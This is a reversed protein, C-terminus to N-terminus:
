SLVRQVIFDRDGRWDLEAVDYDWFLESLPEPFGNSDEDNRNAM